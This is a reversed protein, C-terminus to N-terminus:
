AVEASAWATVILLLMMTAPEAADGVHRGIAAACAGLWWCLGWGYLVVATRRQAVGDSGLRAYFSASAFAAIVLMLASLFDRDLWSM